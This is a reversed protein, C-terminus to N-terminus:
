IEHESFKEDKIYSVGEVQFKESYPGTILSIDSIGAKRLTSIQYEVIPKGNVKVMAKPQDSVDKSIRKGSGAAIIIAKM